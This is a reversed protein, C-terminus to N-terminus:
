YLKSISVVSFEQVQRDHFKEKLELNNDSSPLVM